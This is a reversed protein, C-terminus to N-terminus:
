WTWNWEYILNNSM